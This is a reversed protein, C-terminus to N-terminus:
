IEANRRTWLRTTAARYLSCAASFVSNRAGRNSRWFRAPFYRRNHTIAPAALSRCAALKAALKKYSPAPLRRLKNRSGMPRGPGGPIGKLYRGHEDRIAVINGGQNRQYTVSRGAGGRLRWWVSIEQSQGFLRWKAPKRASAKDRCLALSSQSVSKAEKDRSEFVRKGPFPSELQPSETRIDADRPLLPQSKGSTGRFDARWAHRPPLM